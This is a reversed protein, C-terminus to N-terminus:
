RTGYDSCYFNKANTSANEEVPMKWCQCKGTSANESGSNKLFTMKWYQCNGTEANEVVQLKWNKLILMKWYRYKRTYYGTGANKLTGYM